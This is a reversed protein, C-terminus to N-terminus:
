AEYQVLVKASSGANKAMAFADMVEGAGFRHSVMPALDIRHNQLIELVEGLETPYGLISSITLERVMMQAFDITVPKKQLSSVCIVAGVRANGVIDPIVPAGSAELYHTTAPAPGFMTRTQGHLEKLKDIASTEIPDFAHRAGLALARERRFASPEFVIIDDVGRHRLAIVEALGIPGAGFIAVKDGPSAGLRKVAHLGVALPEVLAGTEMSIGEPLRLIVDPNTAVDRVLLKEAFGGEPGGNGIMNFLPNIIVRDGVAASTVEEGVELLTGSLEHGLPIPKGGIGGMAIFGLDTGCIGVTNVGVVVDRKGARPPAVEELRLDGPGHVFPVKM